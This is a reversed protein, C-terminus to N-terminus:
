FSRIDDNAGAANRVLGFVKSLDAVPANTAYLVDKDRMYFQSALFYGSPERLNVSYVTPVFDTVAGGDAQGFLGLTSRDELRYVFLYSPNARGDVLGGAKGLAEALTMQAADFDIQANKGSAGLAVFRKPRNSVVVTDGAKIYVNDAPRAVLDDFLETGERGGRQLTVYTQYGPYKPGGARAIVDLVRDGSPTIPFRSPGNVEGLVSVQSAKQDKLTIVVQPDIARDKLRSVIEAQVDPIKRGAVHVAGAYPVTINGANDVVQDPLTVYNGPRTSGPNPIFLGGAAAEFVTVSVVDGVGLTVTPVSGRPGMAGLGKREQPALLSVIDPTLEVLVYPATATRAEAVVAHPTPGSAPFLACGTLLSTSVVVAAGLAGRRDKISANRILGLDLHLEM